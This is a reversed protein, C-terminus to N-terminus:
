RQLMKLARAPITGTTGCVACEWARSAPWNHITLHFSGDEGEVFHGCEDNPCPIEVAAVYVKLMAM